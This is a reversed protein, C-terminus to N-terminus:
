EYAILQFTGCNNLPNELLNCDRDKREGKRRDRIVAGTAMQVPPLKESEEYTYITPAMITTSRTNSGGGSSSANDDFPLQFTFALCM